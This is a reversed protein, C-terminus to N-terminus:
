ANMRSFAAFGDNGRLSRLDDDRALMSAVSLQLLDDSLAPTSIGARELEAQTRRLDFRIAGAPNARQWDNFVKEDMSFAFEILPVVPISHGRQHLRKMECIWQYYPVLKLATGALENCREFLGDPRQDSASIHFIGQGDPHHNALCVVSRAVYDVPTLGMHPRYGHIGVGSLLSSKFIRYVRQLEDYRGQQTDAWVLGLRFINCPIGRQNAIMFLKESVWKSAAYGNSAHHVEHDIPTYENILRASDAGVARFVSLTSIYNILKPRQETALKIIERASGVNAPKAMAYAELHNMSTACHFISDVNRSLAEYAGDELGIRPLRLDGPMAIVRQEAEESWLDWHSLVARLRASAERTSSARVLCYIRADTDRLLQAVLFRGVFGTAGTVLIEKAPIRRQGPNAVIAEDLIAEQHLHVVDDDAVVGRIRAALAMITPSGYVDTMRLKCPFRQNIMVLARLVLLSHGGLDFFNENRGIWKTGLLEQWIKALAQEIEGSPAEYQGGIYTGAEPMPLARQDLKGNVTLPLSELIVYAYPLMYEPLVATLRARLMEITLTTSPMPVVYAVIRSEGTLDGRAIVAADKVQLMAKLQAEIEGLEIRMGRIKVQHDNRGLYEIMGDERWRALDGTKYVREQEDSGFPSAIFRQSTLEPRRLYGRAVGAGGIYVEGMVGLPVPRRLSDLVYIQRNEMPCGIHPGTGDARVRACTADVTSETPGYVNYFDIHSCRSLTNWLDADIAEGGVLAMRLRCRDSELLGAAIWVRLQSPTCDICDIQAERILSVMADADSRADHPVLVIARGSLLQILQKVSADFNFSANVGIRRCGSTQRYIAELGQWLSVVNRHEVMVGKPQGTSGSTYIVYALNRSNHENTEVDLNDDGLKAIDDWQQDIAVTQMMADSVIMPNRQQTLLLQPAADELVHTLREAPYNPDLPLYAGGAKWVALVSIVMELSREACIAVLTDPGVGRTKLYRGLQNAKRNLEAFTLTRDECAVAVASPAHAVREEFLRHILKEESYATRTQNFGVVLQRREEAPVVELELAPQGPAHELSLVLAEIATRTYQILRNADIRRHTKATLAFGVGLDDTSMTLPYNTREQAAVVQIGMAKSWQADPNPVSHRYNFLTTFLPASGSIGSCRQAVALSAQEHNLLEVLERQVHEVLSRATVGQLRLRLPLTNIFMGLIRQSEATSQMRGLLVTGFVVDDRGSTRAVVLAWAAHFLTAASVSFRRAQVRINKALEADLEYRAEVVDSGDGHVNLLGFPATPEDVNALKGRFFAEADHTRAYALARAVHNRYPTSEAAAYGGKELHAVIEATLYELTVHDSTMHHLQLYAYWCTGNPEAAVSLRLLPAVRIDLRQREPRIWEKIQEMSDREANLAIEEVPLVAKRYVVQVPRPLAEWLVATRLIDHRDVVAQLSAILEDLRTKSSVSLVTPLVYTDGGQDNLLSHFLIGEQLPALPYIDKINAAGGPVAQAIAEIHEAHLEVLPLMEPTIATCGMPIPNPPVDFEEVAESELVHALDALTPSEFVRRLETSLGVRRLKEMMQVILLSHGGLQFFNDRRGVRELRLLSQWIGALIEELDGRPAEYQQSTYADIEPAPLARRDLKGSPSLPMRELVVFASPVMYEPLTSKLYGRLTEVSPANYAETPVVYAVLRKEGAVGEQAIVVGEKVEAHRVLQAEIEGLEIRFGRVKVQDDNRGIYEIAGDARWRGLDGTRYMRANPSTGFPDCVFREATLEPRIFYGRGVGAGSIYIEGCVGLPVPQHHSDLIYVRRNHMPRGIHPMTMDGKLPAVTADVTCETPGYVNYCDFDVCQALRSWLEPDIAEGGVLITRLASGNSKSLGESMWASLQSPTCDIGGIRHNRAFELLRSADRRVDQDVIYVTRGSLLQAIQQLSADFNFSANLAVRQCASYQRYIHELGQWLNLVNRHEIMVGKPQGTSGSTYLVYALQDSRLNLTSGHLDEKSQTAIEPWGSDLAIVQAATAPLRDLLHGQTLVFSPAADEMMYALREAPYSPDLPVYAGGAKWIGLLGVFMELSRNVCLGVLQDPGLGRLWLHRALQNAKANLEAYTLSQGDHVLALTEPTQAVQEEFLEHILKQDPYQTLEGSFLKDLARREDENMLSLRSVPQDSREVMGQLVVKLYSVWRKLTAHDFLDTAYNLYGGIGDASEYLSLSLDFQASDPLVEQESLLLGPIETLRRPTNQLVFMVQFIPAHSLSRQPQIADVVQEFPVDQHAQAGVMIEKVRQLLDIVAPDDDLRVRVALTNVFLGILGELETRRRNAVPMGIVIDQQGSLRSLVISWGVYLTMALTLNLSRSLGKVGQTLDGGLFIPVNAGRYSQTAPRSHDTPLHLLEPAGHLHERWYTLQEQLEPNTLRQQQWHAYDAYQVPLPPLPNPKGARSSEYLAALERTLVGISWGDSVIHHMTILLVNEHAGFKLLRGRILPGVSLNFPQALEDRSQSAMVADRETERVASLDILQLSFQGHSAINQVPKGEVEMFTTRLAEHREILADLAAQLASPDLEGDLRLGIPVHYAPSGGELRDIFWLRQQASSMPVPGARDLREIASGSSEAGMLRHAVGEISPNEFFEYISLELGLVSGISAIVQVALLSDGGLELFDDQVSVEELGLADAWINALSEEMPTRPAVYARSTSRAVSSSSNIKSLVDAVRTLRLASEHWQTSSNSSTATTPTAASRKEDSVKTPTLEAGLTVAYEAPVEFVSEAELENGRALPAFQSFSRELFTRAPANRATPRFRLLVWGLQQDRAIRGLENVIRHEVGRGLVRCSLIFTDIDIALAERRFFVAGVLGYDGFRDRVRVTLICLDGTSWLAEIEGLRRRISTMNFQNTRQVLEAVRALEGAQMPAVEVKLELSALFEELGTAEVLAKNRARNQRYQITRTRAEETVGIRDFAWVHALFHAIEHQTTPFQLALVGPCHAQVEACELPSDDVLIFSDLALDLEEALSKLNASKSNWNVRSSVLHEDRLPMEKRAEFVAQVDAPNNKSCLCLLVGTDYQQVLLRQFELHAPTLEVGNPGDEGCVGKWLTNDCDIAIVKCQPKLLVAIRRALLTAVAVFYEQTYPIHGLRDARVDEHRVVPYLRVLDAHTWCHTHALTRLDQVLDLEIADLAHRYAEPLSSACPCFFILISASSRARLMKVARAFETATRRSHELNAEIGEDLRDRVWDAPRVLLVNFGSNNTGLLSRPNLLEQMVQAYPALTVNAEIELTRMWFELPQQLPDATFTAAVVVSQVKDAHEQVVGRWEGGRSASHRTDAASSSGATTEAQALTRDNM